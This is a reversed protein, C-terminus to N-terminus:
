SNIWTVKRKAIPNLTLKDAGQIEMEWDGRGERFQGSEHCWYRRPMLVWMFFPIKNIFYPCLLRPYSLSWRGEQPAWNASCLGWSTTMFLCAWLSVEESSLRQWLQHPGNPCIQFGLLISEPLNTLNWKWGLSAPLWPRLCGHLAQQLTELFLRLM